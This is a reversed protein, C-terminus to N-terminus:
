HVRPTLSTGVRGSTDRTASTVIEGGEPRSVVDRQMMTGLGGGPCARPGRGGGSGLVEVTVEAARDAGCVVAVMILAMRLVSWDSELLKRM